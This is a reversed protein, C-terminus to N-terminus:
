GVVLPPTPYTTPSTPGPMPTSTRPSGGLIEEDSPPSPEPARPRPIEEQVRPQQVGWGALSAMWPAQPPSANPCNLAQQSMGYYVAAAPGSPVDYIGYYRGTPGQAQLLLPSAPDPGGCVMVSVVGPRSPTVGPEWVVNPAEKQLVELEATYHGARAYHQKEAILANRLDNQASLDPGAIPLPGPSTRPVPIAAIGGIPRPQPQDSPSPLPDLVIYRQPPTLIYMLAAGLLIGVTFLVAPVLIQPVGVERPPKIVFGEHRPVAAAQPTTRPFTTQELSRDSPLDSSAPEPSEGAYESHLSGNGENGELPSTSKDIKEPKAPRQEALPSSIQESAANQRDQGATEIVPKDALPEKGKRRRKKATKRLTSIAPNDIRWFDDPNEGGVLLWGCNPCFTAGIHQEFGCRPCEM